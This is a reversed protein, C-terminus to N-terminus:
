AAAEMRAEVRAARAGGHLEVFTRRLWQNGRDRHFRDHWYIAIPFRMAKLPVPRWSLAYRPALAQALMRPMLCVLDSAELIPAAAMYHPIRLHVTRNLGQERLQREVLAHGTGVFDIALHRAAALPKLGLTGRALPHGARMVCVYQQDFLERKHMGAELAPLFGVAIDVRGDALKEITTEAPSLLTHLRVGPAARECHAALAPLLTAEGIDRMGLTFVRRSRAPDFDEAGAVSKDILALADLLYGALAACRPTPAM